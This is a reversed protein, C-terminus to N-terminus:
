WGHATYWITRVTEDALTLFVSWRNPWGNMQKHADPYPLATASVGASRFARLARGSHYDSTLVVVRGYNRDLIKATELANGRTTESKNEVTIAERPVGHAILYDAMLPAANHGSVIVRGFHGTRWVLSGYFSRWYSHLGLTDADYTESGLVVLVDGSDPGWPSSLAATWWRLVPTATILILLFGLGTAFRSIARLSSRLLVGTTSQGTRSRGTM